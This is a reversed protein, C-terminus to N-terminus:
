GVDSQASTSVDKGAILTQARAMTIRFCSGGGVAPEYELMAQNAQCLENAIYLGLGNGLHNTTYFPEFIRDALAASIGPGHDIVEIVPRHNDKGQRAIVRINAPTGPHHGYRLANNVLATVVQHLQQPDIVAVLPRSKVDAILEYDNEHVRSARYDVTFLPVWQSLDVHEPQSRDRRALGLVNEVIGNMRNCQNLMIEILRKDGPLLDPSEELLQASHKIAALPNRIEHAIGASLRGLTSLTLEEARRSVLSSDDLFIVFLEEAVSISAIRPIVPERDVALAVPDTLQIHDNRWAALREALAPSLDALVSQDPRPGGLLHWAAENMLRVHCDDDVVVVGTRMRRIIMENLQALHTVQVGRRDALAVSTRLQTGLLHCLLAAALYTIAFMIAEIGDRQLAGFKLASYAHIAM